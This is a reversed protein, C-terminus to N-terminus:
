SIAVHEEGAIESLQYRPPEVYYKGDDGKYHCGQADGRHDAQEDCQDSQERSIAIRVSVLEKPLASPNCRLRQSV